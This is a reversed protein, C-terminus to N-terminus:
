SPSEQTRVYLPDCLSQCEKAFFLGRVYVTSYSEKAFSAQATDCIFYSQKAFSAQVYLIHYKAVSESATHISALSVVSLEIRVLAAWQEM